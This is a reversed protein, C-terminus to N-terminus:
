KKSSVKNYGNRFSQKEKDTECKVRRGKKACGYGVGASYARKEREDYQRKGRNVYKAM